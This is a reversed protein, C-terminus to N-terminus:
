NKLRPVRVIELRTNKGLRKETAFFLWQGDASRTVGGGWRFSTDVLPVALEQIKVLELSKGPRLRFVDAM